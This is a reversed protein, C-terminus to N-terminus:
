ANLAVYVIVLALMACLTRRYIQPM